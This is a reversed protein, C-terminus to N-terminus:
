LKVFLLLCKFTKCSFPIEEIIFNESLAILSLKYLLSQHKTSALKRFLYKGDKLFEIQKWGVGKM